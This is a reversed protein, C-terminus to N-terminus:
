PGEIQQRRSQQASLALREITELGQGPPVVRRAHQLIREADAPNAVLAEALRGANNETQWDQFAQGVRRFIGPPNLGTRLGEGVVGAKGLEEIDRANYATLSGPPQRKGTARMTELLDALQAPNGGAAQVGAMLTREQEPNGALAAAWKAGGYQNMGGQLDQTSENLSGMLHQRTLDAGVGPAQSDLMQVARTTEAPAGELPQAPFLASTQGKVSNTNAVAGLPGRQLPELYEARGAAVGQRAAAYEPSAQTGIDAASGAAQDRLAALGNDGAQIPSPRVQDAATGLRKVVENVVAMNNDPLHAVQAGLEPHARLAALAEAYSPNQAMQAYQADPVTQGQLADYNPEAGHNIFRRVGTMGADAATQARAGIMSPQDTQPALADALDTAANRVQGPRQSMVPTMRESGAKTGEIVRQLRGMGTGGNTVQQVAEALTLQVGQQQAREMLQRAQTVQADSAGRSAESLMRNTPGGRGVAAVGGAGLMAGAARAYPEIPKGETAEGAAQSAAAPVLMNALRRPASGPMALAPAFQAATRTREGAKTQPQYLPKDKNTAAIIEPTTPANMLAGPNVLATALRALRPDLGAKESGASVLASLIAGPGSNMRPADKISPMKAGHSSAFDMGKQMLNQAGERLDGIAGPISSVGEVFGTGASRGMDELTSVKHPEELVRFPM